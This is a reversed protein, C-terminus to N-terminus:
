RRGEGAPAPDPDLEVAGVIREFPVGARAYALEVVEMSRAAVVWYAAEDSPVLTSSVAEIPEGEGRLGDMAERVRQAADEFAEVTVGPWYREVLWTSTTPVSPRRAANM